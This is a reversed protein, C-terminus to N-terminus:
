AKEVIANPVHTIIRTSQGTDISYVVAARFCVEGYRLNVGANSEAGLGILPDSFAPNRLIRSRGTM